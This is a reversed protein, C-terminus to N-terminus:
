SDKETKEALRRWHRELSTRLTSSDAGRAAPRAIVVIDLDPLAGTHRFSERVLRKIRNRDVARPAVKTSVAMGLRSEDGRAAGGLM